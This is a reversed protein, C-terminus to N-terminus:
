LLELAGRGIEFARWARLAILLDDQRKPCYMALEFVVDRRAIFGLRYTLEAEQVRGEGVYGGLWGEIGSSRPDDDESLRTPGSTQMLGSRELMSLTDDLLWVLSADDSSSRRQARIVLYAFLKSEEADTLRIHIASLNGSKSEAREHSWSLPHATEFDPKTTAARMWTEMQTSGSGGLLAFTVHATWFDEKAADWHKRACMTNVFFVRGGDVRATTRRVLEMDDVTRVGTVDYFLNNPGPFWRGSV